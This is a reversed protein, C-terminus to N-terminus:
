FIEVNDATVFDCIPLVIGYLQVLTIGEDIIAKDCRLGRATESPKVWVYHTGDQLIIKKEVPSNIFQKINKKFKSYIEKMKNNVKFINDSFICTVGKVDESTGRDGYAFVDMIHKKMVNEYKGHSIDKLLNYSDELIYHNNECCIDMSGDDMSTGSIECDYQELLNILNERFNLIRLDISDM